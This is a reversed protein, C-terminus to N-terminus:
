FLLGLGLLFYAGKITISDDESLIARDFKITNIQYRLETVLQMKEDVRIRMGFPMNFIFGVGLDETPKNFSSTVTYGKVYPLNIVNLSLGLGIGFYPDVKEGKHRILLDGIFKISTVKLYDDTNFTFNGPTGNNLRWKTTQAEINRTEISFELEGGVAQKGFGGVRMGIPGVGGTKLDEWAVSKYYGSGSTLKIGLDNNYTNDLYINAKSNYFELNLTPSGFGLFIDFFGYEHKGRVRQQAVPQTYVPQQYPQQVQPQQYPQQQVPQADGGMWDKAIVVSSAGIAQATETKILRANVEIKGEQTTLLTGTIIAEVGLLKGLNKTSTADMIGSAQLKLENMVKDLVSREIIEFKKLKIMRMTLRESIVSGDKSEKGDTYSFPIIAIKKNSFDAGAESLEVALKDYNDEAFSWGAFTFCLVGAIVSTKITKM